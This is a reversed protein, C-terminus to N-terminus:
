IKKMLVKKLLLEKILIKKMLIKKMLIERDSDISIEMDGIIYKPINKKKLLM